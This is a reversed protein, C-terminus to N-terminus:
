FFIKGEQCNRKFKRFGVGIGISGAIAINIRQRIRLDEANIGRLGSM